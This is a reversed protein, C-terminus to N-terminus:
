KTKTDIKCASNSTSKIGYLECIENISIYWVTSDSVIIDIHSLDPKNHIKVDKAKIKQFTTGRSSKKIHNLYVGNM